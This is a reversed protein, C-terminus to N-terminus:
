GIQRKALKTVFLSVPDVSRNGGNLLFKRDRNAAQMFRLLLATPGYSFCSLSVRVASTRM